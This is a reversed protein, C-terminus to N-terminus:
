AVSGSIAVPMARNRPILLAVSRNKAPYRVPAFDLGIGSVELKYKHPACGLYPDFLVTAGPGGTANPIGNRIRVTPGGQMLRLM